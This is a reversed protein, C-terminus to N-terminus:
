LYKRRLYAKYDEEDIRAGKLSGILKSTIPGLGGDKKEVKKTSVTLFFDSVIQSLSKNQSKAYEEANKILKKDVKLTLKAEM